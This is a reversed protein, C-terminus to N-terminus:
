SKLKRKKKAGTKAKQVATRRLKAEESLKRIEAKTAPGVIIMPEIAGKRKAWRARQAAAIKAKAAASM